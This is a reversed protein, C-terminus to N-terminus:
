EMKGLAWSLTRGTEFVIRPVCHEQYGRTVKLGSVERSNRKEYFLSESRLIAGAELARFIAANVLFSLELESAVERQSRSRGDSLLDVILKRNHHRSNLLRGRWREKEEYMTLM